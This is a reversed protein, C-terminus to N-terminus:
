SGDEGEGRDTGQEVGQLEEAIVSRILAEVETRFPSGEATLEQLHTAVLERLTGGGENQGENQDQNEISEISPLFADEFDSAPLSAIKVSSEAHSVPSSVVGVEEFEGQKRVAAMEATDAPRISLSDLVEMDEASEGAGFEYDSYLSEDDISEDVSEEEPDSRVASPLNFAPSNIVDRLKEIFELGQFPRGASTDAGARSCQEPGTADGHRFILAVVPPFALGKLRRCLEQGTIGPLDVEAIVLRPNDRGCIEMAEEANSADSVDDVQVSTLSGRVQNVLGPDPSVVLVRNSKAM